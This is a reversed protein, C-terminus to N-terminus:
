MDLLCHENNYEVQTCWRNCFIMIPMFPQKRCRHLSSNTWCERRKGHNKWMYCAPLHHSTPGCWCPWPLQMDIQKNSPARWFRLYQWSKAQSKTVRTHVCSSRSSSLALLLVWKSICSPMKICLIDVFFLLSGWSSSVVYRFQTLIFFVCDM